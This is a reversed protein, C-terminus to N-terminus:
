TTRLFSQFKHKARTGSAEPLIGFPKSSSKRSIKINQLLELPNRFSEPLTALQWFSTLWKNNTELGLLNGSAQQFHQWFCYDSMTTRRLCCLCMCASLDQIGERNEKSHHLAPSNESIPNYLNSSLCGQWCDWLRCFIEGWALGCAPGCAPLEFAANRVPLNGSSNGSTSSYVAKPIYSNQVAVM